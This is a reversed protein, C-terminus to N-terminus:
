ALEHCQYAGVSHGYAGLRRDDVEPMQEFWDLARRNDHLSIQSESVGSALLARHLWTQEYRMRLRIRWESAEDLPQEGQLYPEDEPQWIARSGFGIQDIALVAFGRSAFFEGSPAGDAYVRQQMARLPPPADSSRYLKDKGWLFAGGSEHIALLGPVPRAASAGRPLLLVAETEDDPNIRLRYRRRIVQGDDHEDLLRPALPVPAPQYPLADFMRQRFRATADPDGIWTWRQRRRQRETRLALRVTMAHRAGLHEDRTITVTHRVVGDKSPANDQQPPATNAHESTM